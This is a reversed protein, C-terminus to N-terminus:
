KNDNDGGKYDILTQMIAGHHAKAIEAYKAAEKHYEALIKKFLKQAANLNDELKALAADRDRQANASYENIKAIIANRIALPRNPTDQPIKVLVGNIIFETQM